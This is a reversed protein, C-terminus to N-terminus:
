SVPWLVLCKTTEAYLGQSTGQQCIGSHMPVRFDTSGSHSCYAVMEQESLTRRNIARTSYSVFAARTRCYSGETKKVTELSISIM